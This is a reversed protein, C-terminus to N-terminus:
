CSLIKFFFFIRLLKMYELLNCITGVAMDKLASDVQDGSNIASWLLSIAKRPDSRDVATPSVFM